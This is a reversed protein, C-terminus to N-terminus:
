FYVNVFNRILCRVDDILRMRMKAVFTETEAQRDQSLSTAEVAMKAIEKLNKKREGGTNELDIV